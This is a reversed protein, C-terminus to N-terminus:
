AFRKRYTLLEPHSMCCVRWQRVEQQFAYASMFNECLCRDGHRYLSTRRSSIEEFTAIVSVNAIYRLNAVHNRVVSAIITAIIVVIANRIWVVAVVHITYNVAVATSSHLFSYLSDLLTFCKTWKMCRILKLVEKKVCTMMRTKKEQKKKPIKTWVSFELCIYSRM